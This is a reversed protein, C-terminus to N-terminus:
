TLDQQLGNHAVTSEPEIVGKIGHTIIMLHAKTPCGGEPFHTSPEWSVFSQLWITTTDLTTLLLISQVKNSKEVATLIGRMEDDVRSTGRIRELVKRAQDPQDREALSNPTDPLMLMGFFLLLAPLGANDHCRDKAGGHTLTGETASSSLLGGEQRVLNAECCLCLIPCCNDKM